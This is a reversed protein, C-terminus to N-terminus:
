PFCLCMNDELVVDEIQRNYQSWTCRSCKNIDVSKVLERHKDGGWWDLISEPPNCSGLKFEEEMKKDVCLYANGDTLLPLIIPSALCRTFDHKVHFNEDFKHTVMYIHFNEDELERCKIFQENVAKVDIDLRKHGEIDKREFDVPRAHFDQFGLDKALKCAEYISYQNEPLVLFKFCLNTKANLFERILVLQKINSIVHDFLDLGKIKAYEERNSADISIAVWQCAMLSQSISDNMVTGNTFMSVKMGNRIAFSPLTWVARHLLPEGGGSICLGKVGWEGLFALLHQLYELPLKEYDGKIYNQGICFYCGLNCGRHPDVNVEIPPQLYPDGDMWKVIQKYHEYYALGKYSNFSNYKNSNSWEM